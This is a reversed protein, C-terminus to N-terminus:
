ERFWEARAMEYDEEVTSAIERSNDEAFQQVRDWLKKDIADTLAPHRVVLIKEYLEGGTVWPLNDGDEQQIECKMVEVSQAEAESDFEVDWDIKCYYTKGDVSIENDFGIEYKCTHTKM